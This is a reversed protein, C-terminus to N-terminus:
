SGLSMASIDRASAFQQGSVPKRGPLQLSQLLLIGDGTQVQLAGDDLGLVKGPNQTDGGSDGVASMWCRLPEDGLTTQAVPWPNFARIQRDIEVATQRWDIRGDAKAIRPAHCAGADPQPEPLLRGELVADIHQMLLDAGLGALRDHMSGGTDDAQIPTSVTAYVPGTDLGAEMQMLSVGTHTDGNLIATQIPSAGRWRPLLSAHLNVCAVRPISLVEPPLLQGYAAVVFLDATLAKLQAQLLSERLSEPQLVRLGAQEAATKVPCATLKRGRGAPKDPQTLVAVVQHPSDQLARLAPVAFDPSGAYIIRAGAM